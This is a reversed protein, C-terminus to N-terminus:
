GQTATSAVVFVKLFYYDKKKQPKQLVSLHSVLVQQSLVNFNTLYIVSYLVVSKLLTESIVRPDYLSSVSLPTLHECRM